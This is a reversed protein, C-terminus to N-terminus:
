YTKIIGIIHRDKTRDYVCVDEGVGWRYFYLAESYESYEHKLRFNFSGSGKMNKETQKHRKKKTPNERMRKM